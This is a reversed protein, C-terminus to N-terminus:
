QSGLTPIDYDEFAKNLDTRSTIAKSGKYNNENDRPMEKVSAQAKPLPTLCAQIMEGYESDENYTAPIYGGKKVLEKYKKSEFFEREALSKAFLKRIHQINEPPENAIIMPSTTKAKFTYEKNNWLKSFDVSTPNTFFFIGDNYLGNGYNNEM